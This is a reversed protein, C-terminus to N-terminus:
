ERQLESEWLVVEKGGDIEKLYLVHGVAPWTALSTRPQGGVHIRKDKISAQVALLRPAVLPLEPGHANVGLNGFTRQAPM